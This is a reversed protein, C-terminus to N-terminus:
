KIFEKVKDAIQTPTVSAKVIYGVAGYEKGKAIDEDTGLNTLMVVPIDKTNANAKLGQLVSFGDLQPMIIDLFILDPREQEALALGSAGDSAVVVGYGEAELKVQYMHSIMEEDEIVLVKTKAEDTM